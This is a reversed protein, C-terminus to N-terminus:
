SLKALINVITDVLAQCDNDTTHYGGAATKQRLVVSGYADDGGPEWEWKLGPAPMARLRKAAPGQNGKTLFVAYMYPVAGSPGRNIAIQIQVGVLDEPKRRPELLFRLDEPIEHDQDDKDFRLYPTLVHDKPLAHRLVTAFRTAKLELLPPIFPVVRGSLFAPITFLFANLFLVTAPSWFIYTGGLILTAVFLYGMVYNTAKDGEDSFLVMKKVTKAQAMADFVRNVEASSVPRWDELGRDKPKNTVKPRWLPFWGIAVLALGLLEDFAFQLILGSSYILAAIAFRLWDRKLIAVTTLQPLTTATM